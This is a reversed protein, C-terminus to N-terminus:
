RAALCARTSELLRYFRFPGQAEVLLLSKRTLGIVCDMVAGRAVGPAQGVTCLHDLTLSGVLIGIRGLVQREQESLLQYSWELSAHLSQHREATSRLGASLLHLNNKLSAVLEFLGLTAARAAAMELALPIGELQRCVTGILQVSQEDPDRDPNRPEPSWTDLSQLHRLFLQASDNNLIQRRDAGAAPVNLPPVNISRESAIRLPERSTALIKVSACSRVIHEALVAAMEVVHECNDFVLLRPQETLRLIIAHILKDSSCSELDLAQALADIIQGDERLDALSLFCVPTAENGMLCQAASIALATKGIGGPGVLTLVSTDHLAQRIEELLADRGILEVAAPLPAKCTLLTSAAPAPLRPQDASSHSGLLMYGRGPVTRVLERDDGLV